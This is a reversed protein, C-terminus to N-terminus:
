IVIASNESPEIIQMPWQILSRWDNEISRDIATFLHRSWGKSWWFLELRRLLVCYHALVVLAMPKRHKLFVLYADSLVVPWRFVTWFTSTQEEFSIRLEHIAHDYADKEDTSILASKDSNCRHLRDLANGIEHHISKTSLSQEPKRILPGLIGKEIYEYSAKLVGEVGRFLFFNQLVEEVAGGSDTTRVTRSFTFALAAILIAFAFVANCNAPTINNLAPRFSAIALDQHMTALESYKLRSMSEHDSSEVLHLAALSLLGHMLFPHHLAEKPISNQWIHGHENNSSLTQYTQTTYHHMLELDQLHLDSTPHINNNSLTCLIDDHNDNSKNSQSSHIQHSMPNVASVSASVSREESYSTRSSDAGSGKPFHGEESNM